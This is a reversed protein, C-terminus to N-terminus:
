DLSSIHVQPCCAYLYILRLSCTLTPPQGGSASTRAQGIRLVMLATTGGYQCDAVDSSEARDIIEKDLAIFTRKIAEFIEDRPSPAELVGFIAPQRCPFGLVRLRLSALIGSRCLVNM